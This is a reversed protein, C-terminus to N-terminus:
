LFHPTPPPTIINVLKRSAYERDVSEVRWEGSEQKRRINARGFGLLSGHAQPRATFEEESGEGSSGDGARWFKEARSRRRESDRERGRRALAGDDNGARVAHISQVFTHVNQLRAAVRKIGDDRGDGDDFVIRVVVGDAVASQGVFFAFDLEVRAAHVPRRIARAGDGANPSDLVDCSKCLGNEFAGIVDHNNAIARAAEGDGFTKFFLIEEGFMRAFDPERPF